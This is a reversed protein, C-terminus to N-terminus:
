VWRRIRMSVRTAEFCILAHPNAWPSTLNWGYGQNITMHILCSAREMRVLINPAFPPPGGAKRPANQHFTFSQPANQSGVWVVPHMNFNAKNKNHPRLGCSTIHWASPNADPSPNFATKTWRSTLKPLPSLSTPKSVSYGGEPESGSLAREM